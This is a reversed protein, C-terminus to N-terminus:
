MCIATGPVWRRGINFMDLAKAKDSKVAADAKALMAKAEAATGGSQQQGLASSWFNLVAASVMAVLLKRSNMSFGEEIPTMRIQLGSHVTRWSVASKILEAIM